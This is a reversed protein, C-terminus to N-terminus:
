TESWKVFLVKRDPMIHHHRIIDQEYEKNFLRERAYHEKVKQRVYEEVKRRESKGEKDCGSSGLRMSWTRHINASSMGTAPAGMENLMMGGNERSPCSAMLMHLIILVLFFNERLKMPSTKKWSSKDKSSSTEISDTSKSVGEEGVGVEEGEEVEADVDM